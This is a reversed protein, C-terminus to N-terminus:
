ASVTVIDVDPVAAAGITKAALGPAVTVTVPDPLGEGVAEVHGPAGVDGDLAEVHGLRAPVPDHDFFEDKTVRAPFWTLKTPSGWDPLVAFPMLSSPAVSEDTVFLM